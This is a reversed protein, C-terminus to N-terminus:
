PIVFTCMTKHCNAKQDIDLTSGLSKPPNSKIVNFRVCMNNYITGGIGEFVFFAFHSEKSRVCVVNNKNM